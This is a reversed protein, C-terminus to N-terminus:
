HECLNWVGMIQTLSSHLLERLTSSLWLINYDASFILLFWCGFTYSWRHAGVGYKQLHNHGSRSAAECRHHQEKMMQVVNFSFLQKVKNCSLSAALGIFHCCLLLRLQWLIALDCPYVPCAPSAACMETAPGFVSHVKSGEKPGVDWSLIRWLHRQFQFLNEVSLWPGVACALWYNFIPFSCDIKWLIGMKISSLLLRCGLARLEWKCMMALPANMLM